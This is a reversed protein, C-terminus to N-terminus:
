GGFYSASTTELYYLIIYRLRRLLDCYHWFTWQREALLLKGPYYSTCIYTILRVILEWADLIQLSLCLSQQSTDLGRWLEEVRSRGLLAWQIRKRKQLNLGDRYPQLYSRVNRLASLTTNLSLAISQRFHVDLTGEEDYGLNQGIQRLQELNSRLASVKTGIAGLEKPADQVNRVLSTAISGTAITAGILTIISAAGSVPDM